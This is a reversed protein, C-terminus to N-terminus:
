SVKHPTKKSFLSHLMLFAVGSFIMADAINFVPFIYGWFRFLFMDVVHGYIFFDIVNGLAGTLILSFSFKKYFPAKVRVLYIFLGIMIVIRGYLLYEQFNALIGWAAGKNAVYNLSFDIGFFDRFVPIGGYPYISSAWRMPLICSSTYAKLAIDCSLLVLMCVLLGIVRSKKM